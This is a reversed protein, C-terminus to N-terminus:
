WGSFPPFASWHCGDENGPRCCNRSSSPSPLVMTRPLRDGAAMRFLYCLSILTIHRYFFKIIFQVARTELVRLVAVQEVVEENVLIRSLLLIVDTPLYLLELRIENARDVIHIYKRQIQKLLKTFKEVLFLEQTMRGHQFVLQLFLLVIRRLCLVGLVCQGTIGMRRLEHLVNMLTNDVMDGDLILVATWVNEQIADATHEGIQSDILKKGEILVVVISPLILNDDEVWTM